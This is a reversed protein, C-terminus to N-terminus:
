VDIVDGRGPPIRHLTSIMKKIKESVGDMLENKEVQVDMYDINDRGLLRYMATNIPMMIKDDEDRWGSSGKTPLVGIIQFDIRKIRIFEGLPNREGFLERIVTQGILAVRARSTVENQTFFRGSVPKSVRIDPYEESTGEIRTNWNKSGFVAQGRGSVYPAVRKVGDIRAIARVDDLTFKIAAGTEVSIGGLRPSSARVMLLNSGLSAIRDKVDEQAGKGIALMAIVSAVGILVGLVSLATRTKNSAMSSLSQSFYEGFRSPSWISLNREPQRKEIDPRPNYDAITNEKREDSTIKGDDLRVARSAYGAIDTEHTVMIITMGSANLDCLIKMIEASSKSDLNGTPEDALLVLPRTILARAIAVRQQQGGSLESPKHASRDGLGVKELYMQAKSDSNNKGNESYILPLVVNEKATHRPLLNFSQFVFGIFSNRLKALGDDSYLSINKGGIYYEGASPRDLIGLINLLTSKGSGSHGMIALFEGEHIELSVGNLAHVDIQGMRYTKFVNKLEIIKM